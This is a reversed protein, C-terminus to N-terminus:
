RKKALVRISDVVGFIGVTIIFLGFVKYFSRITRLYDFSDNYCRGLSYEIVFYTILTGLGGIPMILLSLLYYASMSAVYLSLLLLTIGAILIIYFILYMIAWKKSEM